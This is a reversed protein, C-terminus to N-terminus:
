GGVIHFIVVMLLAGVAVALALRAINELFPTNISNQM